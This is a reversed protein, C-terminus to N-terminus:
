ADLLIAVVAVVMVVLVVAAWCILLRTMCIPYHETLHVLTWSGAYIGLVYTIVCGAESERIKWM